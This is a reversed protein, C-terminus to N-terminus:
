GAASILSCNKAQVLYKLGQGKCTHGDLFFVNVGLSRPQWPSNRYPIM